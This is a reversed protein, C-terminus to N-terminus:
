SGHGQTGIFWVVAAVCYQWSLAQRGALERCYGEIGASLATNDARSGPFHPSTVLEAVLVAYRGELEREFASRYDRHNDMLQYRVDEPLFQTESLRNTIIVDSARERRKQAAAPRQRCNRAAAELLCGVRLSEVPAQCKNREVTYIYTSTNTLETHETSEIADLLGAIYAVRQDRGPSPADARAPACLATVCVATIYLRNM